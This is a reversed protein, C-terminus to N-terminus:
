EEQESTALAYERWLALTEQAEVEDLVSIAFGAHVLLYQGPVADPLYELCAKQISGSFDVRGMKLGHEEVIEILKGPIALCM